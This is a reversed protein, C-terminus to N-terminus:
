SGEESVPPAALLMDMEEPTLGPSIEDGTESEDQSHHPRRSASGDEAKAIQLKRPRAQPAPVEVLPPESNADPHAMNKEPEVSSLASLTGGQYRMVRAQPLYKKMAALLDVLGTFKDPENIVLAQRESGALGWASRSTQARRRICLEALALYPDHQTAAHWDRAVLLARLRAPDDGGRPTLLM